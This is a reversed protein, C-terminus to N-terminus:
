VERVTLQAEEDGIITRKVDTPTQILNIWDLIDAIYILFMKLPKKTHTQHQAESVSPSLFVSDPSVLQTGIESTSSSIEM